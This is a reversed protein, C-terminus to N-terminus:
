SDPFTRVQEKVQMAEREKSKGSDPVKVLPDPGYENEFEIGKKFLLTLGLFINYIPILLVWFDSGSRGLDHLRRVTVATDSVIGLILVAIICVIGVVTVIASIIGDGFVEMVTMIIVVLVVMILDDLMNHLLYEGRGARGKFSFLRM